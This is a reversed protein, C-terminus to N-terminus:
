LVKYKDLMELKGELFYQAISKKDDSYETNYPFCKSETLLYDPTLNPLIKIFYQFGESWVSQAFLLEDDTLESGNFNFTNYGAAEEVFNVKIM